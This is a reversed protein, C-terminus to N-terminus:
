IPEIPVNYEVTTLEVDIYPFDGSPLKWVAQGRVPLNLGGLVGYQTMPTEWTDLTYQGKNEFYRQAIFNTLRGDAGFVLRATVSKGCDTFTVDASQDDVAQWTVNDGLFAIPFWMMENLYRMLAGQDMEPGRADFITFLGAVKGFMHGRGDKYTDQGSM